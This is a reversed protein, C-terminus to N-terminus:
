RRCLAEKTPRRETPTADSRFFRKASCLEPFDGCVEFYTGQVSTVQRANESACLASAKSCIGYVIFAVNSAIAVWRLTIMSRMCFTALVLGAAAFGVADSQASM